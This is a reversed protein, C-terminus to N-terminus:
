VAASYGVFLPDWGETFERQQREVTARAHLSTVVLPSNMELPIRRMTPFEPVAAPLVERELIAELKKKTVEFSKRWAPIRLVKRKDSTVPNLKWFKPYFQIPDERKGGMRCQLRGRFNYVVLEPDKVKKFLVTESM